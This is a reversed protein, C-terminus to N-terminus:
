VCTGWRKCQIVAVLVLRWKGSLMFPQEPGLSEMEMSGLETKGGCGRWYECRKWVSSCARRVVLAVGHCIFRCVPPLSATGLSLGM